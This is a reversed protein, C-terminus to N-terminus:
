EYKLTNVPNMLASKMVQFGITVTAILVVTIVPLILLMWGVTIRYPYSELWRNVGYFALPLSLASAIVVLRIFDISLISVINTISAGLVKRIGIEKSRKEVALMALGLLGICSIVITIGAGSLMIKKWKAESTYAKYNEEDKFKYQFFTEPYLKKFTREILAVAPMSKGPVIRMLVMGYDKANRMTFVQAGSQRNLSLFHYDKAVGIVTYSENRYWFNIQQGIPDKWGAEKAFTENVLVARNSDSPFQISFNRGQVIPIKYLSLYHDDITEYDFGIEQDGNVKAVTGERGGNKVSVELIHPNQSLEQKLLRAESHKLRKPVVVVNSDDYGLPETTLFKFQLFMSMTGILMVTAIAFQLVVLSRQLFGARGTSLKSKLAEVPNCGSLVFAPYLGALLGTALLLIIYGILNDFELLYSLHLRKNSLENFYPLVLQVLLIALTFAILTMLYSEALFQVILQRNRSGVVKRVGIERTRRASRAISLNVFNICAIVLIFLAIASLIYSYVPKSGNVLGNDVSYEENLHIDTLPQLKNIFRTKDNFKAAMEEIAAKADKEYVLQMKQEVSRLDAGPTLLVFTNLFYNFWHVDGEVVMPIVLDLQISSNDPANQVVGTVTYSEFAERKKIEIVKGLVEIDGFMAFAASESLIVSHPDQLCTKPSGKKLPFSFISFFFPDVALVPRRFINEDSRVELDYNKLRTYSEIEPIGAQFTPGQLYGSNGGLNAVSGDPNLREYVLRYINSTQSHFRDYSVEDNAYLIILMVCAIAMSLGLINILSFAKNKIINRLGVTFYSKYMGYANPQHNKFSKMFEPRFYKVVSWTFKWKAKRPSSEYEKEFVEMLDGEIEELYDERCFWRLFQRPHKPPTPKM